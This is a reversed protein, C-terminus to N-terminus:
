PAPEEVVLQRDIGVDQLRQVTGSPWRIELARVRTESGLGFHVRRDGASLYSSSTTVTAQRTAGSVTTLRVLAGIGDRNSRHGV